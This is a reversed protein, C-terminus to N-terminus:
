QMKKLKPPSSWALTATIDGIASSQEEPLAARLQKIRATSVGLEEAVKKLFAREGGRKLEILRRKIRHAKEVPPLRDFDRAWDPRPKPPIPSEVGPQDGLDEEEIANVDALYFLAWAMPVASDDPRTAQTLGAIPHLERLRSERVKARIFPEPKLESRGSWREALARGTIFRDVPEFAKLEESDYWTAMLPSLYDSLEAAHEFLVYSFMSLGGEHDHVYANLGGLNPGLFVWAAVEDATARLRSALMHLARPYAVYRTARTAKGGRTM